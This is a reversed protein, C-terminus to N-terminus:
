RQGITVSAQRGSAHVKAREVRVRARAGRPTDTCAQGIPGAQRGVREFGHCVRRHGRGVLLPARPGTSSGPTAPFTALAGTNGRCLRGDGRSECAQRKDREAVGGACAGARASVARWLVTRGQAAVWRHEGRSSTRSRPPLSAKNGNRRTLRHTGQLPHTMVFINERPQPEVESLMRAPWSGRRRRPLLARSVKHAPRRPEAADRSSRAGVSLESANGCLKNNLLSPARHGRTQWWRPKM